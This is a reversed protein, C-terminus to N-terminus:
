TFRYWQYFDLILLFFIHRLNFQNEGERNDM